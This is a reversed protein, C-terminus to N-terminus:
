ARWRRTDPSGARRSGSRSVQRRARGTWVGSTQVFEGASIMAAHGVLTILTASAEHSSGCCAFVTERLRPVSYSPWSNPVKIEVPFSHNAGPTETHLFSGSTVGVLLADIGDVGQDIAIEGEFNVLQPIREAMTKYALGGMVLGFFCLAIAPTNTKVKGFLPLDIENVVSNDTPDYYTKQRLAYISGVVIMAVGIGSLVLALIFDESM